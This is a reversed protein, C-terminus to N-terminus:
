KELREYKVQSVKHNLTDFVIQLDNLMKDNDIGDNVKLFFDPLQLLRLHLYNETPIKTDALPYIKRKIKCKSDNLSIVDTVSGM